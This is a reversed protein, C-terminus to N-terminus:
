EDLRKKEAMEKGFLVKQVTAVTSGLIVTTFVVLCLSTTVIVPKNDISKDIRLVLGFAVAGRIMGAYSIFVLDKFRIGSKYGFIELFKIIGITGIFRGGIIIFLEAIFLHFSWEYEMFSFFTLGIYAFVFAEIGYGIV